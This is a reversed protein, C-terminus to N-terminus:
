CDIDEDLVITVPSNLARDTAGDPPTTSSVSPATQDVTVTNGASPTEVNSASDTARSQITYSGDAPLFWSYTWTVNTGPCGTCIKLIHYVFSCQKGCSLSSRSDSLTIKSICLFFNLKTFLAFAKNHIFFIFNCCGPVFCTVCQHSKM